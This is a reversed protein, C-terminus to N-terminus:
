AAGESQRIKEGVCEIFRRSVGAINECWKVMEDYSRERQGLGGEIDMEHTIQNRAIFAQQTVASSAMVDGMTLAFHAAVRLLQDRSQLSDAILASVVLAGARQCVQRV